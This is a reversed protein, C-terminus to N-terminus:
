LAGWDGEAVGGLAEGHEDIGAGAIEPDDGAAVVGDVAAGVFHALEEAGVVGGVGAGGGAGDAAAAEVVAVGAVGGGLGGDGEVVELVAEGDAVDGEGVLDKADDDVAGDVADGADEAEAGIQALPEGGAFGVGEDEIGHLGLAEDLRPGEGDIQAVGLVAVAGDDKAAEVDFLEGSGESAEGHDGAKFTFRPIISDGGWKQKWQSRLM